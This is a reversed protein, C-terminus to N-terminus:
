LIEEKLPLLKYGFSERLACYTCDKGSCKKDWFKLEVIENYVKKIIEGLETVEEDTIEFKEKKYNGRADPEIFDIEGSTVKYKGNDFGNLLLKYFVLQRKYNGDSSKTKGEIDNRSKPSGTKYDVVNVAGSYDLVEIKDINGTLNIKGDFLIGRINFENLINTNWQNAYARYYGSLAKVGKKLSDKYDLSNLPQAEIYKEFLKVIFDGGVNEGDKIKNFFDRLTYHIANGYMLPKEPSEPIRVLNRYFYSWPCNLYNNLATVSFGRSLFLENLYVKDDTSIGSNIASDFLKNKNKSLEEEFHTSNIEEIFESDIEGLFQSPLLLKGESNQKPYSLFVEMKARTIAVYFLRREDSNEDYDEVEKGWIPLKFHTRSKRNGWHTDYLGFVYVVDFELGKSRHATMLHVCDLNSKQAGAKRLLRRGKAMELFEMFDVLMFDRHNEVLQKMNDFLVSLKETKEISDSGSLLYNLFGSERVLIEFFNLLGKNKGLKSWASINKYLNLVKEVSEGKLEDPFDESDLVELVKKKNKESYKILRYLFFEDIKLFDVHALRLFKQDDGFENVAELLTVVKKMDEDDLINQESEIVFPIETKELVQVLPFVDRNDRYIVAIDKPSKGEKIKNKISETIFQFEENETSFSALSIKKKPHESRAILQKRFESGKGDGKSILSHASDLINQTSRYNDELFIIKAGKYLDKFYLFNNLSAGQFRFIAQKEDGVIFLNPSEYFGSIKELVKNQANNTDQHEDVLIYQYNEQLRLLLDPNSELARLTEMIMDDYDYFQAERLAEEYNEYVDCLEKNKNIHKLIDSYKGKMKGKHAGKEHLLDPTDNFDKEEERVLERLKEVGVDERKLESIAKIISDLYYFNDGYPRLLDIKSKEIVGEMLKIHDIPSINKSSIIRPFDEPYTKIIHNCFGHFTFINVRYALSGIVSVLRKRMSHVGSDTFTLALISDPSTDTKRLINAIRLSLIQTKGTGPGAIVMVPGDVAEVAEKQRPNLKSFSEEFTGQLM